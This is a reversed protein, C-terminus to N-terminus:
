RRFLRMRCGFIGVLWSVLGGSEFERVYGVSGM